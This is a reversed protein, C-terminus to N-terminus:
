AYETVIIVGHAGAGGTHAADSSLNVAGGGGGGYLAAAGGDSATKVSPAGSGFVSPGGQGGVAQAAAFSSGYGGPAGESKFDGVGGSRPGGGGGLGGAHLTAVTDVKGALGGKATCVSPSDFTTDGGVNGDAGSNGTGGAGVAVTYATLKPAVIFKTSYAGGGGGGGAASNTAADIVGGGAAGGGVCEVFIARCGTPTTYSTTGQEIVTQKLLTYGASREVVPYGDAGYVAFGLGEVYDLSQGALLAVKKVKAVTTGDTHQVTVTQSLTAHTNSVHLTKVNRQISSGPALVVDTTAAGTIGTNKRGPTVVTGNFDVYSAHVDITTTADSTVLQIKDSTSVLLLM